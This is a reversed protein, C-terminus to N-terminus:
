KPNIVGYLSLKDSILFAIALSSVSTTLKSMNSVNTTLGNKTGESINVSNFIDKWLSNSTNFTM